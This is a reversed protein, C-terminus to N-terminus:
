IQTVWSYEHRNALAWTTAGQTASERNQEASKTNRDQNQNAMGSKTGM